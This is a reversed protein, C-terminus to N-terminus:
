CDGQMAEILGQQVFQGLMLLVKFLVGTVKCCPDLRLFSVHLCSLCWDIGEAGQHFYLRAIHSRELEHM